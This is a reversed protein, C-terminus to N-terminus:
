RSSVKLVGRRRRVKPMIPSALFARLFGFVPLLGFGALVVPHTLNPALEAFTAVDPM